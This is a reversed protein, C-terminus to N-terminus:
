AGSSGVVDSSTLLDGPKSIRHGTEAHQVEIDEEIEEKIERAEDKSLVDIPAIYGDENYQNIQELSLNSM